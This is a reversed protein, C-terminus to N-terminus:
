DADRRHRLNCRTAYPRRPDLCLAFRTGDWDKDILNPSHEFASGRCLVRPRHRAVMRDPAQRGNGSPRDDDIHLYLSTTTLSAHGLNDRVLRLDVKQDAMHSGVSHRPWHASAKWYTQVRRLAMESACDRLRKRLFTRSSRTCLKRRPENSVGRRPSRM